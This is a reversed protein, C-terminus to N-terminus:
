SHALCQELHKIFILVKLRGSLVILCNTDYAWKEPPCPSQFVSFNLLKHLATGRTLPLTLIWVQGAGPGLALSRVMITASETAGLNYKRRTMHM